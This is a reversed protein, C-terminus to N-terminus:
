QWWLFPGGYGFSLPDAGRAHVEAIALDRWMWVPWLAPSLTACAITVGVKEVVLLPRTAPRDSRTSASSTVVNADWLRVTGRVVAYGATAGWYKAFATM